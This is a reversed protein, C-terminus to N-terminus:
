IYDYGISVLRAQLASTKKNIENFTAVLENKLNDIDDVQGSEIDIIISSLKGYESRSYSILEEVDKKLQKAYFGVLMELEEFPIKENVRYQTEYKGSNLSAVDTACTMRYSHQIQTLLIYAREVKELKRKDAERKKQYNNALVTATLTIAGGVVTAVLTQWFEM